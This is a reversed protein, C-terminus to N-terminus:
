EDEDKTIDSVMKRLGDVARKGRGHKFSRGVAIAATMGADYAGKAAKSGHEKVTAVGAAAARAAGGSVELEDYEVSLRVAGDSFGLVVDGLVLPRGVAADLMGSTVGLGTVRGSPREFEVDFITGVIKGSPAVVPMGRWQVTEDWTVGIAKETKAQSPLAACELEVRGDRLTVSSLPVYRSAVAVIGGVRPRQVTLGIAVPDAPAFLVEAVTGLTQGKSSVVERGIIGSMRPM